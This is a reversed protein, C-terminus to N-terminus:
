RRGPHRGRGRVVWIIAVGGVMFIALAGGLVWWRVEPWPLAIDMEAGLVSM